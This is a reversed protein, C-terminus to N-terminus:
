ELGQRAALEPRLALARARHEAAQDSRGEADLVAALAYHAEAFDPKSRIARTFHEIADSMRRQRAFILGVDYDAPPQDPKLRLATLLHQLADTVDGKRLLVHGLSAQLDGQDPRMREAELLQGLAEDIRGQRALAVGLNHRADVFDPNLRVATALHSIAEAPQGQRALVRGLNYHAEAFDPKVDLADGFQAKARDLDGQRELVEGLNNHASAFQPRLRLAEVFHAKAEDLYGEKFLVYGLNHHIVWNGTTVDLARTFLTTSNRWYFVQLRSLFALGVLLVAASAVVARTARPWRALLDSAGWAVVIFLGILPVYTFRDAVAQHGAQVLGIVPVLTGLFWLWGVPVYPRRRAVVLAVASIGLVVVAAGAIQGAPWSDPLPYFVALGRPWLMKGLYWAYATLVNSSRARLSLQELSAVAGTAEAVRFTVVAGAAALIVLPLKEVILNSWRDARRLPWYDLLLLVFPLTVIMPKAMLGLAFAVAVLAFRGLSPRGVYVAYLWLALLLFLTSLLDKRESVWAVSEVHLPHVAFLAAVVASCWFAGTMRRLAMLLVLSNAVHLLLNTLHHGGSALGYLECDLMHSLWTFPLWLSADGNRFAWAISARTLGSQVHRNATVYVDDDLSVFDAHMLPAYVAIVALALLGAVLAGRARPARTASSSPSARFM